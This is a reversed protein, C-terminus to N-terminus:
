KGMAEIDAQRYRLLNGVRIPELIGKKRWNYLTIRSVSLMEAAQETTLLRNEKPPEPQKNLKIDIASVQARIQALEQSIAEFPNTMIAKSQNM